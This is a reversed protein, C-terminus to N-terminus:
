TITASNRFSLINGSLNRFCVTRKQLSLDLLGILQSVRVAHQYLSPCVWDHEACLSLISLLSPQTPDRSLTFPMNCITAQMLCTGYVFIMLIFGFVFVISRDLAGAM